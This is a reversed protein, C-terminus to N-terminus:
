AEYDDEQPKPGIIESITAIFAQLLFNALMYPAYTHTYIVHVYVSRTVVARVQRVGAADGVELLSEGGIAVGDTAADRGVAHRRGGRGVAVSGVARAVAVEGVACSLEVQEIPPEDRRRAGGVAEGEHSVRGEVGVVGDQILYLEELGRARPRNM